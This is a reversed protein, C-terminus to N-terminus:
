NSLIAVGQSSVSTLFDIDTNVGNEGVHSMGSERPDRVHLSLFNDFKACVYGCWPLYVQLGAM